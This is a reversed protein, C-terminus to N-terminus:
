GSELQGSWSEPVNEVRLSGLVKKIEEWVVQPRFYQNPTSKYEPSRSNIGRGLEGLTKVILEEGEGAKPRYTTGNIKVVIRGNKDHSIEDVLYVFLTSVEKNYVTGSPGYYIGDRYDDEIEERRINFGGGIKLYSNIEILRAEDIGLHLVEEQLERVAGEKLEEGIGLHGSAAIDIKGKKHQLLVNGNRDIVLVHVTSHWNGQLHLFTDYQALNKLILPERVKRGDIEREVLIPLGQEDTAILNIFEYEKYKGRKIYENRASSIEEETFTVNLEKGAEKIGEGVLEKINDLNINGGLTERIVGQIKIVPDGCMYPSRLYHAIVEPSLGTEQSMERLDIVGYGYQPHQTSVINNAHTRIYNEVKQFDDGIDALYLFGIFNERNAPSPVAPRNNMRLAVDGGNCLLLASEAGKNKMYEAVEKVTPGRRGSAGEFFAFIVEGNEKEGIAIHPYPAPKFNIKVEQASIVYFEGPQLAEPNKAEKYGGKELADKIEDITLDRGKVDKLFKNLSDTSLTVTEGHLAKWILMNQTISNDVGNAKIEDLMERIGFDLRVKTTGGFQEKRIRPFNILHRLDSFQHAVSLLSMEGGDLIKQGFTFWSIQETIDEEGNETIKLVKEVLGPTQGKIIKLDLIDVAGNQFGVICNYVRDEVNEGRPWYLQIKGDSQKIGGIFWDNWGINGAPLIAVINGEVKQTTYIERQASPFNSILSRMAEFTDKGLPLSLYGDEDVPEMSLNKRIEDQLESTIEIKNTGRDARIKGQAYDSVYLGMQYGVEAPNFEFYYVRSPGYKFKWSDVKLIPVRYGFRTGSLYLIRRTTTDKLSNSDFNVSLRLSFLFVFILKLLKSM